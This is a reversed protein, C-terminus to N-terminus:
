PTFRIGRGKITILHTPQTPNEEIKKRLRFMLQDLAEESVGKTSVSEGWVATVIEEREIIRDQNKLLFSLLSFELRTLQTSLRELTIPESTKQKARYAVFNKFLPIDIVRSGAIFEKQESPLLSNWIEYSVSRVARNELLFAKIDTLMKEQAFLEELAVRTYKGHGATLKLLEEKQKPALTKGAVKELHQIRFTLSPPDSLPLTITHSVLTGILNGLTEKDILEELPKNTSFVVSLQHKVESRVSELFTFFEQPITPFFKEFRDCLLIVHLDQELCLFRFVKKLSQSLILEDNATISQSLLNQGRKELSDILSLAILKLADFFGHKHIEAFPILVFHFKTQNGGLHRLRVGRNYPLVRLLNSRGVGPIGVIQVFAGEKVYAFLQSLPKEFSTVPYLSELPFDMTVNNLQKM